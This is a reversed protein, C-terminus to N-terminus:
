HSPRPSQEIEQEKEKESNSISRHRENDSGNFFRISSSHSSKGSTTSLTAISELEEEEQQTSNKQSTQSETEISKESENKTNNPIAISTDGKIENTVDVIIKGHQGRIKHHIKKLSSSSVSICGRGIIGVLNCVGILLMLAALTSYTIAKYQDTSDGETIGKTKSLFSIANWITGVGTIAIPLATLCHFLVCCSAIFDDSSKWLNFREHTRAKLSFLCSECTVFLTGLLTLVTFIIAKTRESNTGTTAFKTEIIGMLATLPIWACMSVFCPIVICHGVGCVINVTNNKDKDKDKDKDETKDNDAKEVFINRRQNESFEKRIAESIIDLANVKEEQETQVTTSLTEKQTELSLNFAKSVSPLERLFIDRAIVFRCCLLDGLTSDGTTASSIVGTQSGYVTLITILERKAEFTWSNVDIESLPLEGSSTSIEANGILRLKEELDFGAYLRDAGFTGIMEGIMLWHLYDDGPNGPRDFITYIELHSPNDRAVVVKKNKHLMEIANVVSRPVRM